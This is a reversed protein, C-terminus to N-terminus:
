TVAKADDGRSMNRVVRFGVRALFAPLERATNRDLEKMDEPLRDWPVLCPHTKRSFDKSGPAYRWGDTLRETMWRDHEMMALREIEAGSFQFDDAIWDVLPAVACGVSRLKESLHDAQQRNSEKLNEPLDEWAAASPNTASSVGRTRQERVYDDHIARALTETVGALLVEPTCTQDLLGFVRLRSANTDARDEVLSALGAHQRMRVIVPVDARELHGALGLAASLGRADDDLCVCVIDADLRGTADFLFEGREFEPSQVQLDRPVLDCVSEVGLYRAKVSAIRETAARDVITARLRGASPGVHNWQRRAARVLVSEGMRGLGVIVMHRLSDPSIERLLAAAGSEFVNFFELRFGGDSAAVRRERLLNCLRPDVVDVFCTLPPHRSGAAERARLAIEANVGDDGCVAVVHRARDLRVKRLLTPDTANGVVVLCGQERCPELSENSKDREIVVVRDGRRSFSTALLWGKTGLGCIVVHDDLSRIRLWQLEDRFIVAFAQSATYVSVAPALLRAVELPWPIPAAVAGSELVFLQLSLYFLDFPTRHQGALAFHRAYGLIGLAVAVFALGWVVPWEAAQWRRKLRAKRSPAPQSPHTMLVRGTSAGAAEVGM